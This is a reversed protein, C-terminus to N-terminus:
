GVGDGAHVPIKAPDPDPPRFFVAGGRTKKGTSSVWACFCDSVPSLGHFVQNNGAHKRKGGAGSDGLREFQKEWSESNGNLGHLFVLPDGSGTERYSLTGSLLAATQQPPLM